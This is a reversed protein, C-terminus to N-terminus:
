AGRHQLRPRRARGIRALHLLRPRPCYGAARYWDAVPEKGYRFPADLVGDAYAGVAKWGNQASASSPCARCTMPSLTAASPKAGPACCRWTRPPSTGTSSTASSSCVAIAAVRPSAPRPHAGDGACGCGAADSRRGPQRPGVSSSATSTPTPRSRSSSCSSQAAASGSGPWASSWRFDPLFWAVVLAAAYFAWTTM